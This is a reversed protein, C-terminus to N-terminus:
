IVGHQCTTQPSVMLPGGLWLQETSVLDKVGLWVRAYESLMKSFNKHIIVPIFSKIRIRATQGKGTKWIPKSKVM